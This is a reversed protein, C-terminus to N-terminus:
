VCSRSKQPFVLLQTHVFLRVITWLFSSTTHSCFPSCHDVSFYFNHTFLFAFLPGCFVLLQTHVFLRVIIWLFTSTTHSCFPSCHNVSFYFNHTFLFAFLPGCLVLLHTHVFDKQECVVELKRHIM